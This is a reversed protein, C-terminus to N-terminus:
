HHHGGEINSIITLGPAPSEIDHANQGKEPITTWLSEGVECEQITPFYVAEGPKFDDTIRARFIFEEYYNDPLHGGSWVIESVGTTVKSGYYEYAKKYEKEKLSIDWGAIPKPKVKIVGDPIQIRVVNTASGDCGHGIRMVAKYTSNAQAQQVELTAHANVISSYSATFSLLLATNIIRKM